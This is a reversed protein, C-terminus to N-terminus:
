TIIRIKREMCLIDLDQEASFCEGDAQIPLPTETHIRVRGCSFTKVGRVHRSKRFARQLALFARFGSEHNVVCVEMRGDAANADPAIKMGSCEYPYNQVCIMFIHSFEVRRNEDLVIYGRVPETTMCDRLWATIGPKQVLLVRGGFYEKPPEKCKLCYVADLGMGASLAFRRHRVVDSGYTMVGYDMLRSPAEPNLIDMLIKRPDSPLKLSKGLDSRGSPILGMTIRTTLNLGDLVEGFTADSGIVVVMKEELNVRTIEAAYTRSDGPEESLFATYEVGRKDLIARVKKWAREGGGNGDRPSVLFYYHM